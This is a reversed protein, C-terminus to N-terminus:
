RVKFRVLVSDDKFLRLEEREIRYKNTATLSELLAAEIEMGTNCFKRTAAVNFQLTDGTLRYTGFYDNCGAFGKVKGSDLQLFVVKSIEPLQEGVRSLGTLKWTTGEIRVQSPSAVALPGTKNTKQENEFAFAILCCSLIFLKMAVTKWLAHM